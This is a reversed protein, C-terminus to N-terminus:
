IIDHIKLNNYKYKIDPIKIIDITKIDTYEYFELIDIIDNSIDHNDKITLYFKSDLGKFRNIISKFLSLNIEENNIKISSINFCKKKYVINNEYILKHFKKVFYSAKKNNIYVVSYNNKLYYDIKIKNVEFDIYKIFYPCYLHLFYIIYFYITINEIKNNKIYLVKRIIPLNNNIKCIIKNYLIIFYLFINMM